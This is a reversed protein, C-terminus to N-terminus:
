QFMWTLDDRGKNPAPEPTELQGNMLTGLPEGKYSSLGVDEYGHLVLFATVDRGNESLPYYMRESTIHGRHEHPVWFFDFVPKGGNMCQVYNGRIRQHYEPKVADRLYQGKINKGAADRNRTGVLKYRFRDKSGDVVHDVLNILPRLSPFDTPDISAKLPLTNSTDDFGLTARIELYRRHLEVEEAVLALGLGASLEFWTM